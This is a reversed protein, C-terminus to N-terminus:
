QERDSDPHGRGLQQDRELTRNRVRPIDRIWAKAYVFDTKLGKKGFYQGGLM